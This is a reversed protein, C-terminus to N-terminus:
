DRKQATSRGSAMWPACRSAAERGDRQHSRTLSARLTLIRAGV